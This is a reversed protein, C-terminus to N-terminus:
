ESGQICKDKVHQMVATRGIEQKAIQLETDTGFMDAADEQM